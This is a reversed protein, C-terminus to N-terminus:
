LPSGYGRVITTKNFSNQNCVRAGVGVGCGKAVGTGNDAAGVGPMVVSRGVGRGSVGDDVGAGVGGGM